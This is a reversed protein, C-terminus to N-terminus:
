SPRESSTIPVARGTALAVLDEQHGLVALAVVRARLPVEVLAEAAQLRIVEVEPLEVLHDVVVVRVPDEVFAADLGGEFRALGALDAVDAERAVLVRADVQRHEVLGVIPVRALHRDVHHVRM